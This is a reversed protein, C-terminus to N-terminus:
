HLKTQDFINGSSLMGEPLSQKQVILNKGFTNSLNLSDKYLKLCMFEFMM